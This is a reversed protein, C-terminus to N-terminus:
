DQQRDMKAGERSECKGLREVIQERPPGLEQHSVIEKRAVDEKEYEEDTERDRQGRPTYDADRAKRCNQSPRGEVKEKQGQRASEADQDQFFDQAIESDPKEDTSGCGSRKQRVEVFPRGM